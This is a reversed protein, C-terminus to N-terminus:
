YANEEGRLGNLVTLFVIKIDLLVNWNRIYWVDCEVRKEMQWLHKTGGRYGNVQAWGTIGPKVAHRVMYKDILRLYEETHRVMHPRPGVVSMNGLLVNFFQPLEDLSSRRLFDGFKTKREDNETAQRTDSADNVKMTRFKYCVFESGYIGTRKQKFFIPGKSTLKIGIAIPIFILPSVILFPVSVALDFIRKVFKNVSRDLPSFTHVMAPLNGVPNPQFQGYLMRNFKPVYIFSAGVEEALRMVPAILEHKEADLTYYITDIKNLRVFDQLESMDGCYTGMMNDLNKKEPSFFGMMRYGYGADSRLEDCVMRATMGSGVIVVRRYNFGVRRIKKLIIRSILWWLSLSLLYIGYFLALVWIQMEFVDMLYLLATLVCLTLISSKCAKIIVRDIYQIRLNHTSSFILESPVFAMNVMLWIWKSNFAEAHQGVILLTIFYAFNLVLFDGAVLMARLYKGFRLKENM